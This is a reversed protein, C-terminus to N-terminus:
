DPHVVQYCRLREPVLAKFDKSQHEGAVQALAACVRNRVAIEAYNLCALATSIRYGAVLLEVKAFRGRTQFQARGLLGANRM